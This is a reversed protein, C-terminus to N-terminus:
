DGYSYVNGSPDIRFREILNTNLCINGTESTRNLNGTLQTRLNLLNLCITM